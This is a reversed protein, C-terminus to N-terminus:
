ASHSKAYTGPPFPIQSADPAHTRSACQAHPSAASLLRSPPPQCPPKPAFRMAEGSTPLYTGGGCGASSKLSPQLRVKPSANGGISCPWHVGDRQSHVRQGTGLLHSPPPERPPKPTLRIEREGSTGPMPKNQASSPRVPPTPAVWIKDRSTTTSGAGIGKVPPQFHEKLNQHQVRLKGGAASCTAKALIIKAEIARNVAEQSATLALACLEQIKKARWRVLGPRVPNGGRWGRVRKPLQENDSEENGPNESM